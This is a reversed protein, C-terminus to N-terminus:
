QARLRKAESQQAQEQKAVPKIEEPKTRLQFSNGERLWVDRGRVECITWVKDNHGATRPNKLVVADGLSMGATALKEHTEQMWAAWRPDGKLVFAPSNSRCSSSSRGSSMNSGKDELVDAGIFELVAASCNDNVFAPYGGDGFGASCVVGLNPCSAFLKRGMLRTVQPLVVRDTPRPTDPKRWLVNLHQPLAHGKGTPMSPIGFGLDVTSTKMRRETGDDDEDAWNDERFKAETLLRCLECLRLGYLEAAQLDFFGASGGDVGVGGVEKWQQCQVWKRVATETLAEEQKAILLHTARLGGMCGLLDATLVFVDYHGPGLGDIDLAENEAAVITGRVHLSGAAFADLGSPGEMLTVGRAKQAASRLDGLDFATIPM